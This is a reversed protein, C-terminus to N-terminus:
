KAQNARSAAARPARSTPPQQPDVGSWMRATARARSPIVGSAARFTAGVIVAGGGTSGTRASGFVEPSAWV